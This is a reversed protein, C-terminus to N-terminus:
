IDTKAQDLQSALAENDSTLRAGAIHETELQNRLEINDVKGSELQTKLQNNDKKLQEIQASAAALADKTNSIQVQSDAMAQEIKVEASQHLRDHIGKVAKLIDDSLGASDVVQDQEAKWQKLLPAITSKSGSGLQALVRDVTPNQGKDYIAQAAKTVDIYNIGARAM